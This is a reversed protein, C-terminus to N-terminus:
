QEVSMKQDVWSAYGTRMWNVNSYGAAVASRVAHVASWGDTGHGYIVIPVTKDAGFAATDFAKKDADFHGTISKAGPVRGELYTAKKRVDLVLAKGLLPKVDAPTVVKAGAIAAPTEGSQAFAISSLQMSGLLLAAAVLRRMNM